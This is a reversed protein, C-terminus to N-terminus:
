PGGGHCQSLEQEGHDLYVIYLSTVVIININPLPGFM